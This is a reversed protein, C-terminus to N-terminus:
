AAKARMPRPQTPRPMREAAEECAAALDILSQRLAWRAGRENLWDADNAEFMAKVRAEICPWNVGRRRDHERQREIDDRAVTASMSM